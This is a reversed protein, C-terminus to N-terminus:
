AIISSGLEINDYNLLKFRKKAIHINRIAEGVADSCVVKRNREEVRLFFWLLVGGKGFWGGPSSKISKPSFDKTM